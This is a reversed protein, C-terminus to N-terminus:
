ALFNATSIGRSAQAGPKHLPDGMPNGHVCVALNVINKIGLVEVASEYSAVEGADGFVPSKALRIAAAVLEADSGILEAARCASLRHERLEGALAVMVAPSAPRHMARVTNLVERKPVLM